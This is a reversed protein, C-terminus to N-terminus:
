WRLNIGFTLEADLSLPDTGAGDAEVHPTRGQDLNPAWTRRLGVVLHWPFGM